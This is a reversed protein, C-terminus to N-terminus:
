MFALNVRVEKSINSNSHIDINYGACHAVPLSLTLNETFFLFINQKQQFQKFLSQKVVKPPKSNNLMKKQNQKVRETGSFNFFAIKLIRIIGCIKFMLLQIVVLAFDILWSIILFSTFYEKFYTFALNVRVMESINSNSPLNTKHGACATVPLSLTLFPIFTILLVNGFKQLNYHRPYQLKNM